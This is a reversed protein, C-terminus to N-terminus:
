SSAEGLVPLSALAVAFLTLLSTMWAEAVVQSLLLAQSLVAAHSEPL